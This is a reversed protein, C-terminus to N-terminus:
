RAPEVAAEVSLHTPMILTFTSGEGERSIVTVDGGHNRVVHRVISLGLGTGGTERSRAQDVRYFREFIRDLDKAPIGIGHDQVVLSVEDNTNAVRVQVVSGPESYKIANDLLNFLASTLQRRDGILALSPEMPAVKISINHKDAAPRVRDVASAVVDAVCIREREVLGEGEIRSLVLLDDVIRNVRFGEDRM